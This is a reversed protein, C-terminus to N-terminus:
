STLWILDILKIRERTKSESTIGNASARLETIMKSTVSTSMLVL